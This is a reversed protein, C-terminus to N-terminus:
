GYIFVTDTSKITKINEKTSEVMKERMFEEAMCQATSGIVKMNDEMTGLTLGKGM